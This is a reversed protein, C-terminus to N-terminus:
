AVEPREVEDPCSPAVPKAPWRPGMGARELFRETERRAKREKRGCRYCYGTAGIYSLVVDKRGCLGCGDRSEVWTARAIYGKPETAVNATVNPCFWM